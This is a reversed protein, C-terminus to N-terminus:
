LDGKKRGFVFILGLVAAVPLAVTPFEPVNVNVNDMKVVIDNYDWDAGTGTRDEFGIFYSNTGKIQYVRVHNYGNYGDINRSLQTYWINEQSDTKDQM